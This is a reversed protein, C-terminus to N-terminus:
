GEGSRKDHLVRDSGDRNTAPSDVGVSTDVMDVVYHDFEPLSLRREDIMRKLQALTLAGYTIDLTVSGESYFRARLMSRQTAM